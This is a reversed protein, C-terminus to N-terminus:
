APAAASRHASSRASYRRYNDSAHLRARGLADLLPVNGFGSLTTSAPLDATQGGASLYLTSRFTHSATTAAETPDVRSPGHPGGLSVIVDVTSCYGM